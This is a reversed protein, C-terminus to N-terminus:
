PSSETPRADLATTRVATLRAWGISADPVAQDGDYGPEGPLVLAMGAGGDTAVIRPLIAPVDTIAQAAALADAVTAFRQLARLCATTPPMMTLEGADVRALGDAPRLWENAIVEHDDHLPTQDTPAAALFFRTDYRRPAGEPTIWHAFYHMGDVALRLDETRAVEILRRTGTDVATRHEAWRALGAVADLDVVTGSRDYALLVGAEEFSERIAAVWYALGGREIGLRESAEADTRGECIAELDDARDAPDVAGGPFVYAGGVFDSNLNRRLMFVELGEAGDRLILVTAADRLPVETTDSM